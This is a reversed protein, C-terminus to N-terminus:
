SFLAISYATMSVFMYESALFIGEQNGAVELMKWFFRLHNCCCFHHFYQIVLLTMLELRGWVVWPSEVYEM